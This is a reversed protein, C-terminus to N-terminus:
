GADPSRGRKRTRPTSREVDLNEVQLNELRNEIRRCTRSWDRKSMHTGADWLGVCDAYRDQGAAKPAGAAPAPRTRDKGTQPVVRKGARNEALRPGARWAPARPSLLSPGAWGAAPVAPASANGGAAALATPAGGCLLSLALACFLQYIQGKRCVQGKRHMQGKSYM